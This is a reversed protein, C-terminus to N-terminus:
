QVEANVSHKELTAHLDNRQAAVEYLSQRAASLDEKLTAIERQLRDIEDYCGQITQPRM